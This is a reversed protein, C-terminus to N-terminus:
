ERRKSYKQKLKELYSIESTAVGRWDDINTRRLAADISVYKPEQWPYLNDQGKIILGDITDIPRKHGVCITWFDESQAKDIKTAEVLNEIGLKEKLLVVRKLAGMTRLPEESIHENWWTKVKSMWWRPWGDGLVGTYRCTSLELIVNDWEASKSIDIGLRAALTSEDILIGESKILENLIFRILVHPPHNTINELKSLFRADIDEPYDGLITKIDKSEAAVYGNALSILQQSYIEFVNPNVSEKDICIDFLDSGTSELLSELKDHASFLIIPINKLLGEKQRTRIEQALATGRFNARKHQENPLDNLGLDLLLGDNANISTRIYELQSEWDGQHQTASIKLDPTLFGSVKDQSRQVSDDDIYIYNIM